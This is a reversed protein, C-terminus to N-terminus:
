AYKHKRTLRYNIDWKDLQDAQILSWVLINKKKFICFKWIDFFSKWNHACKEYKKDKFNKLFDSSAILIKKMVKVQKLNM